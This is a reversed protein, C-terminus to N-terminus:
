LMEQEYGIEKWVARKDKKIGIPYLAVGERYIFRKTPTPTYRVKELGMAKRLALANLTAPLPHVKGKTDVQLSTLVLDKHEEPFVYEWLEIPRLAGQVIAKEVRPSFEKQNCKKQDHANINQGCECVNINKRSWDFMQTEMFKVFQDREKKIGRTAFVFHM